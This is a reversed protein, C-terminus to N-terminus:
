FNRVGTTYTSMSFCEMYWFKSNKHTTFSTNQLDGFKFMRQVHETV